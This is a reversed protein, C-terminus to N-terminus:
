AIPVVTAIMTVTDIEIECYEGHKFFKNKIADALDEFGDQELEMLEYDISDSCKLSMRLKM